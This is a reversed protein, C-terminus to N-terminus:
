ASPMQFSLYHYATGWLARLRTATHYRAQLAAASDSGLAALMTGLEHGFCRASEAPDAALYALLDKAAFPPPAASSLSTGLRSLARVLGDAEDLVAQPPMRELAGPRLGTLFYFFNRRWDELLRQHAAGADPVNKYWAYHEWSSWVPSTGHVEAGRSELLPLIEPYSWLEAETYVPAVMTDRWWAEFTRSARLQLFDAEFFGRAIGLARDSQIDDVGELAYARFLVARKLMELLGGIRDNFSIVGFGGPRVLGTLKELMAARDPLTSLFGEAIVLDYQDGSQFSGLDAQHFAEIAGERAFRRFLDHLRPAVQAHPEVFTLRAGFGALVLANEGSNCGFELVRRDRLLSLPLGLHREYLNRRKAQHDRWVAPDEVRILVPNFDQAEYYAVMSIPKDAM